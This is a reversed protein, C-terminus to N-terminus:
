FKAQLGVTISRATGPSVWVQSYSNSYYTKDFLNDVDLSLRLAKSLRYYGVLKATTYAPLMFASQGANAEASTRTQGLREGVHTVGGGVGYRAGSLLGEYVALVSGNVRPVNLVRSGVELTGDRAIKADNFVLSANVRWQSTVQGALDFELGRSTVEGAAISVGGLSTVVNRKRINFLAATAGLRQDASEWKTGLELARGKEPDFREGNSGTANPRFSTGASAYVSWQRTPLWTAGVRPSVEHQTQSGSGSPKLRNEVSQRYNDWRLGALLRWQTSLSVADQAYLATNRQREYTSTNPHPAPQPQGYVPSHIDIAYPATPSPNIRRMVQDLTFKYTEVGLLVDHGIEGTEFRGQLEAQAAVDKSGFDRHRRQRTLTRDDTTSLATAETSFGVLETQRHSLAFRSRWADNWDHQFALQNTRNVITIDGDAAEGLFRERAVAGLQNDVAVVGRDLPARHRLWEATYELHSSPALRWTLAPAFVERRADVHDRFSGRTEVAANLRYALDENVPATSDVAARYFDFSGVYAEASHAARWRPTKTVINLTGGPESTGYLSAAPGKLFEIREVQAMDRPANFGRNGSFGNLLTPTGINQDGPMGRIAFNDWLGGFSNQRSVGGVYDLVDDLKTAGLDDIAQRTIVRVSQPLERLPLESKTGAVESAQYAGSAGRGVVVITELSETAPSSQAQVARPALGSALAAVSAALAALRLGHAHSSKPSM